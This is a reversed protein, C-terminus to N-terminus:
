PKEGTVIGYRWVDELLLPYQYEAARFNGAQIDNRIKVFELFKAGLKALEAAKYMRKASPMINLSANTFNIDKFGVKQMSDTFQKQGWLNPVAWGDLWSQTMAEFAPKPQYDNIFGDAVAVRGGPKLIRYAEQLFAEKDQAYCVSEMGWVVDFTNDEFRTDLYSMEEFLIRDKLGHKTALKRAKTLQYATINIGTMQAGINRALWICSGGIGCGADLVLDNTRINAQSALVRNTNQVADKHSIHNADYYGYHLSFSRDTGWVIRYDTDCTEYYQIIEQESVM